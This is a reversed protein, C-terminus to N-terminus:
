HTEAANWRHELPIGSPKLLTGLPKLPTGLTNWFSESHDLPGLSSEPHELPNWPNLHGLLIEPAKLSM